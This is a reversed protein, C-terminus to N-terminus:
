RSVSAHKNLQCVRPRMKRLNHLTSAEHRSPEHNGVIGFTAQKLCQHVTLAVLGVLRRQALINHMMVQRLTVM